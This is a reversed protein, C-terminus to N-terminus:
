KKPAAAPAKVPARVKPAVLKTPAKVPARVPAKLFSQELASKSLPFFVKGKGASECTVKRGNKLASCDASYRDNGCLTCSSCVTPKDKVTVTVTCKVTGDPEDRNGQVNVVIGNRFAKKAAAESLAAADVGEELGTAITYINQYGSTEGGESDISALVYLDLTACAVFSANPATSIRSCEVIRSVADNALVVSSSLLFVIATFFKM